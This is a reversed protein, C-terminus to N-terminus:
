RKQEETELMAQGQVCIAAPVWVQHRAKSAEESQRGAKVNSGRHPVQGNM